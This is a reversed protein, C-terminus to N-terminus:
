LCFYFFDQDFLELATFPIYLFEAVGDFAWVQSDHANFFPSSIFALPVCLINLLISASFKEFRSFSKGIRIFYAELVGSKVL